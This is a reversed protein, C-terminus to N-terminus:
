TGPDAGLTNTDGLVDLVTVARRNDSYCSESSCLAVPREKGYTVTQLRDDAVGQDVLFDRVASARRAGLALNYERTGREDAHGEIIATFETHRGLWRAQGTLISRAEETLTSRDVAFHVRDGIESELYAPTNEAFGSLLDAGGDVAFPDEPEQACAQLLCIASLAALKTIPKM